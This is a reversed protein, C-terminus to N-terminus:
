DKVADTKGGDESKERKQTVYELFAIVREFASLIIELDKESICDWSRQMQGGVVGDIDQVAAKGADSLELMVVREDEESRWRLLYGKQELRKCMASLNGKDTCVERGLEGVTCPGSLWLAFLAQFQMRTLGYKELYPRFLASIQNSLQRNLLGIRNRYSEYEV